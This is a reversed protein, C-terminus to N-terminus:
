GGSGGGDRKLHHPLLSAVELDAGELRGREPDDAPGPLQQVRVAQHGDEEAEDEEVAGAADEDPQPVEAVERNDGEADEGLHVHLVGGRPM